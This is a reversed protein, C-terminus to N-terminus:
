KLHNLFSMLPIVNMQCLVAVTFLALLLVLYVLYRLSPEDKNLEIDSMHGIQGKSMEKKYNLQKEKSYSNYERVFRGYLGVTPICDGFAKMEGYHLWIAKNCMKQIQGISHSVFFITKGQEQFEKMRVICKNSFTDDGVSLAEDVILVDPDTHVAIAFGLRSKMGSSYTKIPQYIFDGLESFAIIDDYREAIQQESLGHMLCKMKINEAGTLENNLGASIAILSSKGNITIQGTSPATVEGLLNSLTSKGAGNLGVLGVSDGAEVEFSIDRLAYYVEDHKEKKWFQLISFIKDSKTQNVPYIKSINEVKVKIATDM